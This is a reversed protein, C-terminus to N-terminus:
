LKQAILSIFNLSQFFVWQCNFGVAELRAQHTALSEPILVTELAQRKRSIELQSYGQQQKFAEHQEQMWIQQQADFTIKESLILIGKAVLADFCRQLLPQRETLTLFQLCFNLTIVSSSQLTLTNIDTCLWDIPYRSPLQQGRELMAASNDVAYFQVPNSPPLQDALGQQLQQTVSGLSCGLDYVATDPQIHTKGLVRILQLLHTYGPVSRQIMDDFVAAVREDFRFPHPAHPDQYLQDIPATM